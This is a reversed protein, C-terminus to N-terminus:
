GEVAAKAIKVAWTPNDSGHAAIMKLVAEQRDCKAQITTITDILSKEDRQLRLDDLVLRSGFSVDILNFKVEGMEKNLESIVAQLTDRCETMEALESDLRICDGQAELYNSKVEDLERCAKKYGSEFQQAKDELCEKQYELRKVKASKFMQFATM